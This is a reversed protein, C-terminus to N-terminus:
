FGGGIAIMLFNIPFCLTVAALAKDSLQGVWWADTLSYATALINAAM